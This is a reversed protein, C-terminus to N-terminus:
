TTPRSSTSSISSSFSLFFTLVYLFYSFSCSMYVLPFDKFLPVPFLFHLRLHYFLILYLFFCLLLPLHLLLLIMLLHFYSFSMKRKNKLANLTWCLMVGYFANSLKRVLNNCTFNIIKQWKIYLNDSAFNRATTIRYLKVIFGSVM